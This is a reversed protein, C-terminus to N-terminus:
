LRLRPPPPPPLEFASVFANLDPTSKHSAPATAYVFFVRKNRMAVLGRMELPNDDGSPAIQMVFRLAPNEAVTTEDQSVVNANMAASWRKFYDEILPQAGAATVVRRVDVYEIGYQHDKFSSSLHTVQWTEGSMDRSKGEEAPQGAFKAKFTGDAPAYPTWNVRSYQLLRWGTRGFLGGAVVLAIIILWKGTSSKAPKQQTSEVPHLSPDISIPALDLDFTGDDMRRILYRTSGIQVEREMDEASLPRAAARGDVRIAVRSSEPDPQVSITHHQGDVDVNWSTDSM